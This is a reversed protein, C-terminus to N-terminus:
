RLRREEYDGVTDGNKAGGERATRLGGSATHPMTGPSVSNDVSLDVPPKEPDVFVQESEAVLCLTLGTTM